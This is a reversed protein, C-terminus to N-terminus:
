RDGASWNATSTRESCRRRSTSLSLGRHRRGQPVHRPMPSYALEDDLWVDPVVLTQLRDLHQLDAGNLKQLVVLQDLTFRGRVDLGRAGATEIHYTVATVSLALILLGAGM